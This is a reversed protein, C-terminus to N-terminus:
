ADGRLRWGAGWVCEIVERGAARRLKARLRQLHSDITRTRDPRTRAHWVERYLRERTVVHGPSRAFHALLAFETPSLRLESGAVWARRAALDVRVGPPAIVDPEASARCLPCRHTRALLAAERAVMVSM